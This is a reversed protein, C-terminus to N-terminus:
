AKLVGLISIAFSKKVLIGLEDSPLGTSVVKVDKSIKAYHEVDEKLNKSVNTSLFVMEMKGHKLGKLTQETGYVLRKSGVLKRLQSLDEEAM